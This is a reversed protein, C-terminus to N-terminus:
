PKSALCSGVVIWLSRSTEWGESYFDPSAPLVIGYSAYFADPIFAIAAGIGLALLGAIGLTLRTFTPTM